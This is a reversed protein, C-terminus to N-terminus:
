PTVAAPAVPAQPLAFKAGSANALYVVARGIELVEFDGGAQAAMNGKGKVASTLLAEYGNKIRPAWATADGLKPAGAVGTTHCAACQAEYVEKGAKLPRDASRVQVAGVKEIRAAVAKDLDAVGVEPTKAAVVYAVIGIIAFTPVVFALFAALLLQKPTKIPGGHGEEHVTVQNNDRM